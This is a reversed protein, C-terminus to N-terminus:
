CEQWKRNETRSYLGCAADCNFEGIQNTLLDTSNRHWPVARVARATVCTIRYTLICANMVDARKRLRSSVSVGHNALTAVHCHLSLSLSSAVGGMCALKARKLEQATDGPNLSTIEKHHPSRKVTAGSPLKVITEIAVSIECPRPHCM